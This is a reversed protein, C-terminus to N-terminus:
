RAMNNIQALMEDAAKVVRSNAEYARQGLIMNVMEEVVSVNSEEVFGQAIAGVGDLGPVGTTPEGSASTAAFLNSGMASLGAPNQFAALEITGVQQPASQGPLEVSVVGQASIAVSTANPPITLQPELPYGDATVIQGEGSLHFMGARTYGVTGDPMSVQFFGNGQIALDLPGSTPRMNGPAFDRATAVLRTGLGTEIGVPSEGSTATPSGAAKSRQYVLDAFEVRSRKFGTTNVNALNHAINDINAQQANMGSAAIYLARIM